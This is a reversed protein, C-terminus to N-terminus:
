YHCDVLSSASFVIVQEKNSAVAFTSEGHHDDEAPATPPPLNLDLDLALINRTKKGDQSELRNSRHRRMHGGLAQGSSFEAGCISCEHVRSNARSPSVGNPIRLSLSTCNDGGIRHGEEDEERILATPKTKKKKEDEAIAANSKKHSARHGGLAQFSLFCRDCTKCQYVFRGSVAANVLAPESPKRNRGQALLILCNAMAEEEEEEEGAASDTLEASNTLSTTATAVDFRGSSDSFSGADDAITSSSSCAMILALPSSQRPRKTRKGTMNKIYDKSAMAEEQAEM